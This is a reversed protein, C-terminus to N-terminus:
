FRVQGGIRLQRKPQIEEYVEYNENLINAVEVYIASRLGFRKGVRVNLIHASSTSTGDVRRQKDLYFYSPQVFYGHDNLYQLGANAVFDPVDAFKREETSLGASFQGRANNWGLNVFYTTERNLAGEVGLRLGRVRAASAGEAAPSLASQQAEDLNQQFLGFRLLSGNRMTHNLEFEISKGTGFEADGVNYVSPRPMDDLSFLFTDRPTLLEFDNIGGMLKRLRLQLGTRENPRYDAIFTPLVQTTSEKLHRSSPPFPGFQIDLRQEYELREVKLEGTVKLRNTAQYEDRAYIQLPRTSQLTYIQSSFFLGPNFASGDFARHGYSFGISLLHRQRWVHDHRVELNYSHAVDSLTQGPYLSGELDSKGLQLLVRTNADAGHALHYGLLLLPSRQTQSFTESSSYTHPLAGLGQEDAQYEALLLVSNPTNEGKQGYIFSYNQLNRDSNAVPGDTTDYSGVVGLVGRRDGLEQLQSVKLNYTSDGGASADVQTDGLSRSAVRAVSPDLLAAQVRDATGPSQLNTQLDLGTAPSGLNIAGGSLTPTALLGSEAQQQAYGLAYRASPFNKDLLTAERFQSEAQTSRGQELYVRGLQYHAPASAPLIQVARRAYDQADLLKGRYLMLESLRIYVSAYEPRDENKALTGLVKEAEDFQGEEILLSALNARAAPNQPETALVERQLAEAEKTEGQRQLAVGLRTKATLSNPNQALARRLVKEAEHPEDLRLFVSGLDELVLPLDPTLAAAQGFAQKAEDTKNQALLARGYTLLALPSLPNIEVARAAAKEAPKAQGTFFLTLAFTSQTMASEPQLRVASQASTQAADLNNQALYALALLARSQYLKPDKENAALLQTIADENNGERLAILGLVASRLAPADPAEEQLAAKAASIDDGSLYALALGVRPLVSNPALRQAQKFAAIAGPADGNQRLAQGLGFQARPDDPAAQTAQQYSEAAASFEGNEYLRQAALLATSPQSQIDFSDIPLEFEVPLGAVDLTWQTMGTVDVAVPPSPAEGVHATSQQGAKILVRGQPNHFDVSDQLVTVVTTNEDPMRVLFSTGRAAATGAATVIQTGAKPEVFLESFAGLMRISLAKRPSPPPVIQIMTNSKMTIRTGNSFVLLAKGHSNTRVFDGLNLAQRERAAIFVRAQAARVQVTPHVNKLRAVPLATASSVFLLLCLAGQALLQAAFRYTLKM